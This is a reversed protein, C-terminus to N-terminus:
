WLCFWKPLGILCFLCLGIARSADRSEEFHELYRVAHVRPFMYRRLFYNCRLMMKFNIESFIKIEQVIHVSRSPYFEVVVDM